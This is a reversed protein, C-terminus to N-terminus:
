EVLRQTLVQLYNLLPLNNKRVMSDGGKGLCLMKWNGMSHEARLFTSYCVTDSAGCIDGYYM